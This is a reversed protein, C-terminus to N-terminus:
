VYKLLTNKLFFSILGFFNLDDFLYNYFFYRYYNLPSNMANNIKYFSDGIKFGTICKIILLVELCISILLLM